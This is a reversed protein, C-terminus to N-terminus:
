DEDAFEALADEVSVRRVGFEEAVADLWPAHQRAAVLIPTLLGSSAVAQRVFITAYDPPRVDNNLEALAFPDPPSSPDPRRGPDPSLITGSSPVPGGGLLGPGDALVAGRVDDPRAGALQLAVYAGLGRGLVTVPGLECLAADADALLLECTYGGGVPVTSAGHGTFDLGWVSGPWGVCDSPVHDPTRSGLGHLLLLPRESGEQLRHLALTVHSHELQVTKTDSM